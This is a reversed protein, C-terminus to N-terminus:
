LAPAIPAAKFQLSENVCLTLLQYQGVKVGIAGTDSPALLLKLPPQGQYPLVDLGLGVHQVLVRRTEGVPRPPSDIQALLLHRSIAGV